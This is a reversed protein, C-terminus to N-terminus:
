GWDANKLQSSYRSCRIPNPGDVVTNCTSSVEIGAKDFPYHSGRMREQFELHQM